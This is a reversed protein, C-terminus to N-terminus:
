VFATVDVEVTMAYTCPVARLYHTFHQRRPWTDLDILAPADM